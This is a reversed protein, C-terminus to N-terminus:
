GLEREEVQVFVLADVVVFEFDGEFGQPEVEGLCFDDGEEGGVARGWLVQVRGAGRRTWLLRLVDRRATEEEREWGEM